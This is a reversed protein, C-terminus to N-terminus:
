FSRPMGKKKPKTVAKKKKKKKDKGATKPRSGTKRRTSKPNSESEPKSDATSDSNRDSATTTLNRQVIVAFSQNSSIGRTPLRQSISFVGPRSLVRRFTFSLMTFIPVMM